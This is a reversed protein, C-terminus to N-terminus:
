SWQEMVRVVWQGLLALVIGVLVLASLRGLCWESLGLRLRGIQLARYPLQILVLAFLCVGVSNYRWAQRLEGHAMSIFCRTLGCGPCEVGSFQKFACAGPFPWDLIPLLVEERSRIRLASSALLVSASLVLLIVQFLLDGRSAVVAAPARTAVTAATETNGDRDRPVVSLGPRLLSNHTFM